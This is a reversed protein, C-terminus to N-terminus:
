TRGLMAPVGLVQFLGADVYGAHVGLPEAGGTYDMVEPNVAGGASFFRSSQARIDDVDLLSENGHWTVLEQPNPYPLPRLLVANVVTFIATNAGIGLALTFIAVVTFGPNKRLTRLAYRVDQALTEIWPLGQLERHIERLQTMGGLRLRADRHAEEPPLGRHINEETLLALHAELEQQFDRDLRGLCLWGRLRCALVRLWDFM